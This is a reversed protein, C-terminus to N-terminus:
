TEIFICIPLSVCLLSGGSMFLYALASGPFHYWLGLGFFALWVGWAIFNLGILLKM